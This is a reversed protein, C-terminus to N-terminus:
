GRRVGAGRPRCAAHSARGRRDPRLRASGTSSGVARRGCRCPTGPGRVGTRRVSRGRPVRRRGARARGRRRPRVPPPGGRRRRTAAGRRVGVGEREGAALLPPERDSCDDGRPRGHDHQVFGRRPLVARRPLGHDVQEARHGVGPRGEHHHRVVTVEHAASSASSTTTSAASPACGYGRGSGVLGPRGRLHGPSWRSWARRGPRALRAERGSADRRRRHAARTAAISPTSASPRHRTVLRSTTDAATASASSSSSRGTSRIGGRVASSRADGTSTATGRVASLMASYPRGEPRSHNSRPKACTVSPDSASASAVASRTRATPSGATRSKTPTSGVSRASPSACSSRSGARKTSPARAATRIVVRSPSSQTLERHCSACAAEGVVSPQPAPTSPRRAARARAGAPSWGRPPSPTAHSRRERDASRPAAPATRPGRTPSPRPAPRCRRRRPPRPGPQLSRAHRLARPRVCGGPSRSGVRRGPRREVGRGSRREVGREVPPSVAGPDASSGPSTSPSAAAAAPAAAAVPRRRTTSTSPREPVPLGRETVGERRPEACDDHVEVVDVGPPVPQPRGGVRDHGVQEPRRRPVPAPVPLPGLRPTPPSRARRAAPPRPTTPANDRAEAGSAASRTHSSASSSTRRSRAIPRSPSTNARSHSRQAACSRANMTASAGRLEGVHEDPRLRPRPRHRRSPWSGRRSRPAPPSVRAPRRSERRPARAGDSLGLSAWRCRCGARCRCRRRAGRRRADRVPDVAFVAAVVSLVAYVGLYACLIWPSGGGVEVFVAALLPTLGVSFISGIQYGLSM